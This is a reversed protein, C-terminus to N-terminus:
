QALWISPLVNKAKVEDIGRVACSEVFIKKACMKFCSFLKNVTGMFMNRKSFQYNLTPENAYLKEQLQETRSVSNISAFQFCDMCSSGPAYLGIRMYARAYKFHGSWKSM